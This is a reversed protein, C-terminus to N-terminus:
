MNMRFRCPDEVRLDTEGEEAPVDSLVTAGNFYLWHGAFFDQADHRPDRANGNYHLLALERSPGEQIAHLLHRLARPKRPNGEDIAKGCVGMLRSFCSEWDEYSVRGQRALAKSSRFYYARPHDEQLVRLTPGDDALGPSGFVFQALAALAWVM